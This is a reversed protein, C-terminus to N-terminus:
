KVKEHHSAFERSIQLFCRSFQTCCRNFRFFARKKATPGSSILINFHQWARWEILRPSEPCPAFIIVKARNKLSAAGVFYEAIEAKFIKEAVSRRLSPRRPKLGAIVHRQLRIAFDFYVTSIKTRRLM